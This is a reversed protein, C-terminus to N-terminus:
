DDDQDYDLAAHRWNLPEPTIKTANLSLGTGEFVRRETNRRGMAGDTPGGLGGTPKESMGVAKAAPRTEPGIDSHKSLCCFCEMKLPNVFERSAPLKPVEQIKERQVDLDFGM